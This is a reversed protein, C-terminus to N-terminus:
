GAAAALDHLLVALGTAQAESLVETGYTFEEIVIFSFLDEVTLSAANASNAPLIIKEVAVLAATTIRQLELIIMLAYRSRHLMVARHTQLHTDTCTSQCKQTVNQVARHKQLLM